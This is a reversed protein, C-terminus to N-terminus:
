PRGQSTCLATVPNDGTATLVGLRYPLDIYATDPAYPELGQYLFVLPRCPDISLTQDNGARLLEGHSVGESWAPGDFVVNSAGAFPNDRDTALPVWDGDLRDSTWARFYRGQPGIAEIVTLYLGTGAIRYHMSAEFIDDRPGSLVITTDSFGNPFEGIGTRSRFLNGHDDTNFLYCHTADCIVWFDLWAEEGTTARIIDPTTEFLPRPATWSLPDNIDATTSVMPPGSQYIMYWLKQPEFYFVQPAARYGPGIGSRDLPTIPAEAAGAWDSFRTHAMHWGSRGATTMFVHIQGDVVVISPDKVASYAGPTEPKPLILPPTSRWAFEGAAIPSPEMKPGACGSGGLALALLPFALLPLALGQKLRGM